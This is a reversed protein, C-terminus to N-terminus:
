RRWIQASGTGPRSPGMGDARVPLPRRPPIDAHMANGALFLRAAERVRGAEAIPHDGPVHLPGPVQLAGVSVQVAARDVAAGCLQELLQDEPRDGAEVSGLGDDSPQVEAARRRM